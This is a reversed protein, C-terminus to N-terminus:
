LVWKWKVSSFTNFNLLHDTQSPNKMYTTPMMDPYKSKQADRGEASGRSFFSTPPSPPEHIEYCKM